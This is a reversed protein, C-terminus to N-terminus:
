LLSIHFANCCCGGEHQLAVIGCSRKSVMKIWNGCHQPPKFCASGPSLRSPGQMWERRVPCAQVSLAWFCSYNTCGLGYTHRQAPFRAKTAAVAWLRWKSPAMRCCAQWTHLRARSLMMSCQSACRASSWCGRCILELLEGRPGEGRTSTRRRSVPVFAVKISHHVRGPGRARYLGQRLLWLRPLM